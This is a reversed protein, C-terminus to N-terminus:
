SAARHGFETKMAESVWQWSTPLPLAPLGM